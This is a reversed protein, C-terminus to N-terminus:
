FSPDRYEDMTGFIISVPSTNKYRKTVGDILKMEDFDEDVYLDAIKLGNPLNDWFKWDFQEWLKKRLSKIIQVSYAFSQWQQKKANWEINRTGNEPNSQYTYQEDGYALGCWTTDMSRIVCSDGNPSVEIVEYASRDSYHLITAGEGIVPISQNNGMLQNMFGGAVGIKRSQQKSTTSKSNSVISNEM